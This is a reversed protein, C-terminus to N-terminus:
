RRWRGLESIPACADQGRRRRAPDWQRLARPRLAEGAHPLHGSHLRCVSEPQSPRLRNASGPCASSQPWLSYISFSFSWGDPLLHRCRVMGHVASRTPSMCTNCSNSSHSLAIGGGRLLVAAILWSRPPPARESRRLLHLLQLLRFRAAATLCGAQTYSRTAPLYRRLLRSSRERAYRRGERLANEGPILRKGKLIM